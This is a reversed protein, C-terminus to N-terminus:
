VPFLFSTGGKAVPNEVQMGALTTQVLSRGSQMESAGFVVTCVESRQDVFGLLDPTQIELSHPLCETGESEEQLSEGKIYNTLYYSISM